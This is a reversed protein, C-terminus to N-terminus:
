KHEVGTIAHYKCGCYPCKIQWIGSGPHYADMRSVRTCRPCCADRTFWILFLLLGVGSSCGLVLELWRAFTLVALM